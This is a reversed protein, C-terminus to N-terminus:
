ENDDGVSAGFHCRSRAGVASGCGSGWIQRRRCPHVGKRVCYRPVMPRGGFCASASRRRPLGCVRLPVQCGGKPHTNMAREATVNMFTEEHVLPRILALVREDGRRAEIGLAGQGVAPLSVTDSHSGPNSGSLGTAQPRLLGSYHRRIGTMLKKLRTNVNGRLFAINLDPRLAKLQCKGACAPPAWPLGQPLAEGSKRLPSQCFCRDSRGARLHCTFCGKPFEM